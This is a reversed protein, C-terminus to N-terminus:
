GTLAFETGTGVFFLSTRWALGLSSFKGGTEQVAAVSLAAADRNKCGFECFERNRALVVWVRESVVAEAALQCPPEVSNGVPEDM